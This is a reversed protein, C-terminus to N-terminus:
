SAESEDEGQEEEEEEEVKYISFTGDENDVFELDDGEKWDLHEWLEDPLTLVGEEDVPCIWSLPQQQLENLEESTM